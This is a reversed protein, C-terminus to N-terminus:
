VQEKEVTLFKNKRPVIYSALVSVACVASLCLWLASSVYHGETFNTEYNALFSLIGFVMFGLLQLNDFRKAYPSVEPYTKWKSYFSSMGFFSFVAFLILPISAFFDGESFCTIARWISNIGLIGFVIAIILKERKSTPLVTSHRDFRLM